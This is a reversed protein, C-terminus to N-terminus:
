FIPPPPQLPQSWRDMWLTPFTTQPIQALGRTSPLRHDQHCMVVRHAQHHMPWCHRGHLRTGSPHCVPHLRPHVVEQTRNEV